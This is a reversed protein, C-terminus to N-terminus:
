PLKTFIRAAEKGLLIAYCNQRLQVNEWLFSIINRSATSKGLGSEAKILTHEGPKFVLNIRRLITTTNASSNQPTFITLNSIEINQTNPNRDISIKNALLKKEPQDCLKKSQSQLEKDLKILRTFSANYEAIEIFSDAVWNLAATFTSFIISVQYFQALTLKGSFYGPLAAVMPAVYVIQQSLGILTGVFVDVRLLKNAHETISHFNRKLTDSYYPESHELAISEAQTHVMELANRHDAEFASLEGKLRGLQRGSLM